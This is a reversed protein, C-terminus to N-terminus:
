RAAAPMVGTMAQYERAIEAPPGSPRPELGIVAPRVTAPGADAPLRAEIIYRGPPLRRLQAVGEGIPAGDAGLLRVAVRDPEARVGVGVIAARALEFGFLASGGPAVMVPAGVGEAVPLVPLADLELAGSLPGEQPAMVRLVTAGAPLYRQFEAGAAFVEPAADGLALVVPATTRAQLLVPTTSSLTLAMAPGALPMQGPLPASLAPVDPFPAADGIWALVPGSGHELVLLGPGTLRLDTGRRVAGDRTIVHADRGGAIRLRQGAAADLPLAVSGAAGFFRRLPRTAGLAPTASPLRAVQVMAPAPARGTNVLLLETWDGDLLRSVPSDGAWVTVADASRWGLVAATGSPLDLRLRKPGEPLLLPQAGNAALTDRFANAIAREPALSPDIARLATRIPTAGDANRLRLWPGGALAISSGRALGMGRGAELAAIDAGSEALWLRAPGDGAPLTATEGAALTLILPRAIAAASVQLPAPGSALLWLRQSQPAILGGAVPALGRGPASVQSLAAGTVAVLAADPVAVLAVHLDGSLGAPVPTVTGLPQAPLSPTRLAFRIPALGGDVRWASARWAAGPEAPVAAVARTGRQATVPQWTGDPAQRDLSLVLEEAAEASALILSGAPAVPLTLHHVGADALVAEGEAAVPRAPMAEPLSLRITTSAAEGEPAESEPDDAYRRPRRVEESDDDEDSAEGQSPRLAAVPAPQTLELVYRGAPLQRSIAINWDDTREGERLLVRGAADRLTARLLAPGFSTLNVVRDTAIAFPLSAPLSVTRAVDPQLEASRLTLRYPLRDNRGLARASVRYRGAPLAGTFGASDAFSAIREPADARHLEAGMGDSISLTIEASGALSFDWLDPDRTADRTAPERWENRAITGFTLPHPGHGATEPPARLATLRAVVRSDVDAPLVVLRYRGAPFDQELGDIPGPAWLPWGEADELRAPVERGLSLLNLRQRGGEAIEIPIILGSGAPLSARVASDPRLVPADRTPAPRALLGLRGNSAEATVTLRYAGARLHRQILMNQGTGNGVAEELPAIFATGLSGRTRLRGLTEVRYLGGEPLTLAFSRAQDRALDFFLPRGAALAPLAPLPRPTPLTAAPVPTRRAVVLSRPAAP